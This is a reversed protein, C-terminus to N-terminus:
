NKNLMQQLKTPAVKADRSKQDINVLVTKNPDINRAKIYYNGNGIIGLKKIFDDIYKQDTTYQSLLEEL